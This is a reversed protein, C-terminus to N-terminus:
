LEVPQCRKIKELSGLHLDSRGLSDIKDVCFFLVFNKEKALLFHIIKFDILVVFKWM